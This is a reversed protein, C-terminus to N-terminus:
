PEPLGGVSWSKLNSCSGRLSAGLSLRRVRLRAGSFPLKWLVSCFWGGIDSKVYWHSVVANQPWIIAECLQVGGLSSGRSREQLCDFKWNGDLLINLLMRRNTPVWSFVVPPTSASIRRHLVNGCVKELGTVSARRGWFKASSDAPRSGVNSVNTFLTLSNLSRLDM